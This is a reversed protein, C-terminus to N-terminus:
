IVIALTCSVYRFVLEMSELTGPSITSLYPSHPHDLGNQNPDNEYVSLTSSWYSSVSSSTSAVSDRARPHHTKALASNYVSTVGMAGNRTPSYLHKPPKPPLLPVKKVTNTTM